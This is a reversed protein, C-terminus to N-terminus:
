QAGYVSGKVREEYYSSLEERLLLRARSLRTKVAAESINLV